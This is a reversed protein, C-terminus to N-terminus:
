WATRFVLLVKIVSGWGIGRIANSYVPLAPCFGLNKLAPPAVTVIIAEASFERGPGTVVVTKGEEWRIATVPASYHLMVGFRRCEGALWDVLRGYGGEVRYEISDSEASWEAYLAKTSAIAPDALDYGSAFRWVSERLRAYKEGAFHESLFAGVPIDQEIRSMESLMDDWHSSDGFPSPDNAMQWHNTPILQLGAARVLGVTVPLDGHVFEAGAELHEAVDRVFLSHIRGGPIAAAELLTVSYGASALRRAAILGAAGAGVVIIQSSMELM